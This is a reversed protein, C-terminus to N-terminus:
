HVKQILNIHCTSRHTTGIKRDLFTILVRISEIDGKGGNGEVGSLSTASESVLATGAISGTAVIPAETRGGNQIPATYMARNRHKERGSTERPYKTVVFPPRLLEHSVLVCGSHELLALNARPQHRARYVISCTSVFRRANLNFRRVTWGDHSPRNKTARPRQSKLSVQVTSRYASRNLLTRLSEFRM